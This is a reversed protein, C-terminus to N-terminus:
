RGAADRKEMLVDLLRSALESKRATGLSARTGDAFLVDLTNEGTGFGRENSVDNVVVASLKKRHLKELANSEHADTEAAFGVLMGSYGGQAISALVDPNRTFPVVLDEDTKKLKSPSYSAPRWDAVAATAICLDSGGVCEQALAQLELATIFRRTSVNAPPQLQTPGLLLTVEAGRLAAERALAIGTSGSSANSVFRIPDFAERTPGATIVVRMGNMSRAGSVAADIAALIEVEDALRGAGREREALFGTGPAVITYGRERLTQLHSATQAHELMASNMAPAVVVPIRAALAATSVLDDAIGAAIKAITNATAPVICLLQAERVLRIHPIREPADWLSTYVPRATLSAFTLAGVFREAEATMLVDVEDGRQVLTSTLAAAKYAAIGGTVALLVRM